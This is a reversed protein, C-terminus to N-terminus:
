MKLRGVKWDAYLQVKEKPSEYILDLIELSYGIYDLFEGFDPKEQTKKWVREHTATQQLQEQVEKVKAAAETSGRELEVPEQYEGRIASRMWGIFNHIHEQKLSLRYAREIAALDGNAEKLLLEADRSSVSVNRIMDQVMSVAEMSVEEQPILVEVGNDLTTLSANEQTSDRDSQLYYSRNHQIYFTIETVKSGKGASDTDIRSIFIDSIENIEELGPKIVRTNFDSWRKYKPKIEMDAMKEFDPHKREAERKIDTQDLDVFGMIMRLEALSYTVQYHPLQEQTLATDIAPLNFAYSKLLKYLQFGGNTRFAFLIPLSLKTYNAKLDKFLYETDPNYEIQMIGNDYSIDGYLSKIVYKKSDKEFMIHYKNKLSISVNFIDDYLSGGSRDTLARIETARLEVYNVNYTKGEADLKDRSKLNTAMRRIALVEIKSELLSTKEKSQIIQNSLNIYQGQYKDVAHNGSAKAM